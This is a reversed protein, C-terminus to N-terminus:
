PAADAEADIEMLLREYDPGDPAAYNFNKFLGTLKTFYERIEVKTKFKYPKTVLGYVKDFAM